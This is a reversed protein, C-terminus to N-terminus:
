SSRTAQLTGRARHLSGVALVYILTILIPILWGSKVKEVLSLLASVLTIILLGYAGWLNGRYTAVAFVILAPGQVLMLTVAVSADPQGEPIYGAPAGFLAFGINALGQLFGLGAAVPVIKGRKAVLIVAIIPVVVILLILLEPWGLGFM